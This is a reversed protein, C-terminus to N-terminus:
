LNNGTQKRFSLIQTEGKERKLRETSAKLKGCVGSSTLTFVTGEICHPLGHGYAIICQPDVIAM